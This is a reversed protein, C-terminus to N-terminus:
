LIDVTSDFSHRDWIAKSDLADTQPLESLSITPEFGAQLMYM